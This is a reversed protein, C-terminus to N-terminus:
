LSAVSPEAAVASAPTAMTPLAEEAPWPAQCYEASPDVPQVSTGVEPRDSAAASTSGAEYQSRKTGLASQFPVGPARLARRASLEPPASVSAEAASREAASPGAPAQDAAVTLTAVVMVAAGSAGTSVKLTM